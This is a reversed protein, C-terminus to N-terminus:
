YNIRYLQKLVMPQAARPFVCRSLARPGKKEVSKLRARMPREALFFSLAHM